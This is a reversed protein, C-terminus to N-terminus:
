FRPLFRSPSKNPKGLNKLDKEIGKLESRNERIKVAADDYKKMLARTENINEKTKRHYKIERSNAYKNSLNAYLKSEVNFIESSVASSKDPQEMKEVNINAENGTLEKYRKKLGNITPQDQDIRNQHTNIWKDSTKEKETLKQRANGGRGTGIEFWAGTSPNFFGNLADKTDKYFHSQLEETKSEKIIEKVGEQLKMGEEQLEKQKTELKQRKDKLFINKLEVGLPTEKNEEVTQKLTNIENDSLNGDKYKNLVKKEDSTLKQHKAKFKIESKVLKKQGVDIKDFFVATKKEINSLLRNIAGKTTNISNQFFKQVQQGFNSVKGM